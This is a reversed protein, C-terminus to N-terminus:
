NADRDKIGKTLRINGSEPTPVVPDFTVTYPLQGHRHFSGGSVGTSVEQPVTGSKYPGVGLVNWSNQDSVALSVGGSGLIRHSKADYAVIGIKATGRQQSRTVLKLEPLSLMGPLVVEPVGYFMESNDTGVAGSRPELIIDAEKVDAVITAGYYALRHRISSMLYSKDVADLYKEEISIKTGSFASFDVKDLAQDIANSILLQETGTRATNSTVNKACGTSLSSVVVIGLVCAFNTRM